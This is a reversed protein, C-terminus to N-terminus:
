HPGYYGYQVDSFITELNGDKNRVVIYARVYVGTEDAATVSYYYQNPISASVQIIRRYIGESDFTMQENTQPTTSVERLIGSEVLTYGEPLDMAAYWIMKHKGTSVSEYTPVSLTLTPKKILDETSNEYVATLAINGTISFNYPNSYSVVNGDADKWYAFQKGEPIDEAAVQATVSSLPAYTAQVVGNVTLSYTEEKVKFLPRFIMDSTITISGDPNLVVPNIGDTSWGMFDYGAKTPTNPPTITSNAAVKESKLLNGSQHYFAATYYTTTEDIQTFVPTITMNGSVKFSIASDTTVTVGYENKWGEFAYGTNAEAALDAEQNYSYGDGIVGSVTGASSDFSGVTLTYKDSTFWAYYTSSNNVTITMTKDTSVENNGTADSTWKSFKCGMRPEATLTAAAGEAYTGGEGVTGLASNASQTNITYYIKKTVTVIVDGCIDKLQNNATDLVATGGTIQFNYKEENTSTFTPLTMSSNVYYYQNAGEPLGGEFTVKYVKNSGDKKLLVPNADGSAPTGGDAVVYPLTQGYVGDANEATGNGGNLLRAVEGSAFQEATKYQTGNFSDSESTDLYYCNTISSGSVYGVVGGTYTDSKSIMSYCNTVSGYWVYAAIAGKFQTNSGSVTGSEIGLNKVIAMTCCGFLGSYGDSNNVALNSIVHGQGDFTGEYSQYNSKGIPTWPKNDLDIDNTLIANYYYDTDGSTVMPYNYANNVKEAFWALEAGTGILYNGYADQAPETKTTGDWDAKKFKGYFNMDSNESITIQTVKSSDTCASDTYWGVLSYGKVIGTTPLVYANGEYYENPSLGTIEDGTKFGSEADISGIKYTINHWGTENKVSATYYATDSTISQVSGPQLVTTTDNGKYWGTIDGYGTAPTLDSIQRLTIQTNTNVYSGSNELEKNGQYYSVKHVAKTSDSSLLPDSDKTDGTLTQGWVQVASNLQGNQLLWAVKGSTFDSTVAETSNISGDDTLTKDNNYYCNTFSGGNRAMYNGKATLSDSGFSADVYCNVATLSDSKWGCLGGVGELSSGSSTIKGTFCCNTMTVNGSNNILGVIGGYTCDGGTTYNMEVNSWCNSINVVGDRAAGAIGGSYKGSSTITGTTGINEVSAGSGLCGFLTVAQVTTSDNTMALTVTHGGGDFNGCFPLQTSNSESFCGVPASSYTIDSNLKFYKGAYSEGGNVSTALAALGDANEIIYPETQTGTGSWPINGEAYVSYPGSLFSIMMCAILLISIKKRIIEM